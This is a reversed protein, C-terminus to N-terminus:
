EEDIDLFEQVMVDFVRNGNKIKNLEYTLQSASECRKMGDKGGEVSILPKFFVPYKIDNPFVYKGNEFSIIWSKPIAMKYTKALKVQEMKNMLSVLFGEKGCDIHPLMFSNSLKSYNSDIVSATFDDTALLLPKYEAVAYNNILTNVIHEVDRGRHEIYSEVYRSHKIINGDSIYSPCYFVSVKYGYEGLGRIVGLTTSYNKGLVIVKRNQREM